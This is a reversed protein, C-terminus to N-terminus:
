ATARQLHLPSAPSDIRRVHAVRQGDPLDLHLPATHENVQDAAADLQECFSQILQAGCLGRQGTQHENDCAREAATVVARRVTDHTMLDRRRILQTTAGAFTLELVGTDAAPNGYLYDTVQALAAHRGNDAARFPLTRTHKDIVAEFARRRALRLFAIMKGGIRRAFADDLLGRSLVNTTAIAIIHRTKLEPRNPDFRDLFGSLIRDHNGELDGGRKRALGDIEPMHIIVPLRWERGQTDIYPEDALREVERMFALLNKDAEGLWKSLAEGQTLEMVRFPLSEIPDGTLEAIVSYIAHWIGYFSFTKGCGSPGHWLHFSSSPLDYFRRLKPNTMELRAARVLDFLGPHPEGFDRDLRVDPVPKRLLFRYNGVADDAPVVDFAMRQEISVYLRAHPQVQKSALKDRLLAGALLSVVGDNDERRVEVIEGDNLARIFQATYGLDSRLSTRGLVAAGQQDVMVGDGCRLSSMLKHDAVVPFAGQGTELVVHSRQEEGLDRVFRAPRRPTASLTAQMQRVGMLHQTALLTAAPRDRAFHEAMMEAAKNPPTEPAAIREWVHQSAPDSMANREIERLLRKSLFPKPQPM